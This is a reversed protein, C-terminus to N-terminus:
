DDRWGGPKSSHNVIGVLPGSEQTGSYQPCGPFELIMYSNALWPFLSCGTLVLLHEYDFPLYRQRFGVRFEHSAYMPIIEIMALFSIDFVIFALLSYRPKQEGVSLFACLLNPYLDVFSIHETWLLCNKYMEWFVIWSVLLSLVCPKSRETKM